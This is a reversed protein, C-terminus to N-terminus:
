RTRCSRHPSGQSGGGRGPWPGPKRPLRDSASIPSVGRCTGRDSVGKPAVFVSVRFPAKKRPVESPDVVRFRKCVSDSGATLLPLSLTRRKIRGLLGPHIRRFRLSTEEEVSHWNDGRGKGLALRRWGRDPTQRGRRWELVARDSRRVLVAPTIWAECVRANHTSCRSRMRTSRRRSRTRRTRFRCSRPLQLKPSLAGSQTLRM